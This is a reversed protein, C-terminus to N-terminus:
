GLIREIEANIEDYSETSSTSNYYSGTSLTYKSNASESAYAEQKEMYAKMGLALTFGM